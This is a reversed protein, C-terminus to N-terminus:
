RRLPSPCSAAKWIIERAACGNRDPDNSDHAAVSPCRRRGIKCGGWYDASYDEIVVLDCAKQLPVVFYDLFAATGELTWIGKLFHAAQCKSMAAEICKIDDCDSFNLHFQKRIDDVIFQGKSNPFRQPANAGAAALAVAVAGSVCITLSRARM